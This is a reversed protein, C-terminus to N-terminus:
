EDIAKWARSIGRLYKSESSHTSQTTIGMILGKPNAHAYILVVGGSAKGMLDLVEELTEGSAVQPKGLGELDFEKTKSTERDYEKIYDTWKKLKTEDSEVLITTVAM